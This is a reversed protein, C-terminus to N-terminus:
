MRRILVLVLILAGISIAALVCWQLVWDNM